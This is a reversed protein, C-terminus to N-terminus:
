SPFIGKCFQGFSYEFHKVVQRSGPTLPYSATQCIVSSITQCNTFHINSFKNVLQRPGPCSATQCISLSTGLSSILLDLILIVQTSTSLLEQHCEVHIFIHHHFDGLLDFSLSIHLIFTFFFYSFMVFHCCSFISILFHSFWGASWFLHSSAFTPIEQKGAWVEERAACTQFDLSWVDNNSSSTGWYCSM